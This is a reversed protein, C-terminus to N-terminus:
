HGIQESVEFGMVLLRPLPTCGMRFHPVIEGDDSEVGADSEPDDPLVVPGAIVPVEDGFLCAGSDEGFM